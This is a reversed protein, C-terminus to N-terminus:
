LTFIEPVGAMDYIYKALNAYNLSHRYHDAGTKLYQAIIDGSKNEQQIRTLNKIQKKFDPYAELNKPLKIKQKKLLNTSKDLSMTRGTTVKLPETKFWQGKSFGSTNVYWCMYNDGQARKCFEEAARGEPNGDIVACKNKYREALGILEDVTKVEGIYLVKEKDIIIVNFIKGVDIGMFSYDSMQATVLLLLTIGLPTQFRLQQKRICGM